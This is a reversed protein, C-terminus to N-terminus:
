HGKLPGKQYAMLGMKRKFLDSLSLIQKIQPGRYAGKGLGVQYTLSDGASVPGLYGKSISKLSAFEGLSM